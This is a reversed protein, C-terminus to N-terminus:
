IGLDRAQKLMRSVNSRTTGLVAAVDDQSRDELFYLRAAKALLEPDRVPPMKVDTILHDCGNRTIRSMPAATLAPLGARDREHIPETRKQIPRDEREGVLMLSNRASGIGAM